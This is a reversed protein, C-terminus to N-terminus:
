DLVSGFVFNTGQILETGESLVNTFCAVVDGAYHSKFSGRQLEETLGDKKWIQNL